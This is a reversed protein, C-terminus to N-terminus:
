TLKLDKLIKEHDVWKVSKKNAKEYLKAKQGDQYDELMEILRNYEALSLLVGEPKSRYFIYTPGQKKVQDLLGKADERM